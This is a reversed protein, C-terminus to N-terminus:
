KPYRQSYKYMYQTSLRQVINQTLPIGYASARIGASMNANM